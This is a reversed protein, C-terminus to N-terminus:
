KILGATEAKKMVDKSMQLTSYYFDVFEVPVRDLREQTIELDHTGKKAGSEANVSWDVEFDEGALRLIHAAEQERNKLDDLHFFFPERYQDMMFMMQKWQIVFLEPTALTTNRLEHSVLCRVPHRLSIICPYLPLCQVWYDLKNDHFHDAILINGGESSDIIVGEENASVKKYNKFLRHAVFNHGTHPVCPANFIM